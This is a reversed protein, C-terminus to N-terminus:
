YEATSIDTGTPPYTPHDWNKVTPHIDEYKRNQQQKDTIVSKRLIFGLTPNRPDSCLLM